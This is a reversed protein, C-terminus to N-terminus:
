MSCTHNVQEWSTLDGEEPTPDSTLAKSTETNSSSFQGGVHAQSHELPCRNTTFGVEKTQVCGRHRRGLEQLGFRRARAFFDRWFLSVLFMLQKVYTIWWKKRETNKWKRQEKRVGGWWSGRQGEWGLPSANMMRIRDIDRHCREHHFAKICFSEKPAKNSQSLLRITLSRERWRTDDVVPEGQRGQQRKHGARQVQRLLHHRGDSVLGTEKWNRNIWSSSEAETERRRIEQSRTEEDHEIGKSSPPTQRARKSWKALLSNVCFKEVSLFQLNEKCLFSLLHPHWLRSPGM